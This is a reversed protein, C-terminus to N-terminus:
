LDGGCHECVFDDPSYRRDWRVTAGLELLEREERPSLFPEGFRLEHLLRELASELAHALAARHPTADRLLEDSVPVLTATRM